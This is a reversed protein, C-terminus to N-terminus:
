GLVSFTALEIRAPHIACFVSKSICSVAHGLPYRLPKRLRPNYTRAKGPGASCTYVFVCIRIYAYLYIYMYACM